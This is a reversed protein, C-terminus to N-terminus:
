PPLWLAPDEACQFHTIGRARGWAFAAPDTDGALVIREPECGIADAGVGAMEPGWRLQMWDVGLEDRSFVGLM